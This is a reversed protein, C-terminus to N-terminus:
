LTCPVSEQMMYNTPATAIKEKHKRVEKLDRKVPKSHGTIEGCMSSSFSM